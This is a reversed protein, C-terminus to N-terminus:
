NRTMDRHNEAVQCGLGRLHEVLARTVAVSRHHGGTCGVAIVLVAKGEERYYPLLFDLLSELREMFERTQPFSFVYDYVAGDLGTGGRLEEIYYPNPMFRVDLVLDAEMPIGYKFGFSVVNVTLDSQRRGGGFLRVLEGRLKATSYTTSNIIYDARDRVPRMLEMEHNVAAEISGFEGYLPHPRRTEKYRKIITDVSAELFLLKCTHESNHRLEDLVRFFEEFDEGARVDYVLAARDYKGQDASFFEAIKLIIAAPMNDVIYYGMDELFSAAKSKGGGSLGSIILIEM